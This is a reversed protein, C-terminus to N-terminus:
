KNISVSEASLSVESLSTPRITGVVFPTHDSDSLFLQRYKNSLVEWLKNPDHIVQGPEVPDEIERVSNSRKRLKLIWQVIRHFTKWDGEIKRTYAENVLAHFELNKCSSIARRIRTWDPSSGKFEDEVLEIVKFFNKPKPEFIVSYARLRLSIEE